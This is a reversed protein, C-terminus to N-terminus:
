RRIRRVPRVPDIERAPFHLYEPEDGYPRGGAGAHGRQADRRRGHALMELVRVRFETRVVPQDGDVTGPCEAEDRRAAHAASRREDEVRQAKRAREAATVALLFEYM